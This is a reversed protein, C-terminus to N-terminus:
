TLKRRDHGLANFDQLWTKMQSMKRGIGGSSFHIQREPSKLEKSLALVLLYIKGLNIFIENYSARSIQGDLDVSVEEQLEIARRRTMPLDYNEILTDRKIMGYRASLILLDLNKPWHNKHLTKRLVRFNVGDYRDIAPLLKPEERKRQSCGLILLYNQELDM